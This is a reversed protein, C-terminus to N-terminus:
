KLRNMAAEMALKYEVDVERSDRLTEEPESETDGPSEWEEFTRPQVGNAATISAYTVYAVFKSRGMDDDLRQQYGEKLLM